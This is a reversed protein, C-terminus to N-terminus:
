VTYFGTFSIFTTSTMNSDTWFTVSGGSPASDGIVATTSSNQMQIFPSINGSTTSANQWNSINFFSRNGNGITTIPFGTITVSGTSSGISSLQVVGQVFVVSGIQSYVGFQYTYTIGITGGGFAIGPTWTGESYTSLATGSGLTISTLTPTATFACGSSTLSTGALVVM